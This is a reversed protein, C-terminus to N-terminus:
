LEVVLVTVMLQKGCPAVGATVAENVFLIVSVGADVPHIYEQCLEVSPPPVHFGIGLEEAAVYVTVTVGASSEVMYLLTAVLTGQVVTVPKGKVRLTLPRTVEDVQFAGVELRLLGLHLLKGGAGWTKVSAFGVTNSLPLGLAV